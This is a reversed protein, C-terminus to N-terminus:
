RNFTHISKFALKLLIKIFNLLLCSFISEFKGFRFSKIHMETMNSFSM